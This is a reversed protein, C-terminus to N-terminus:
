QYGSTIRLSMSDHAIFKEVWDCGRSLKEIGTIFCLELLSILPQSSIQDFYRYQTFKQRLMSQAQCGETGPSGSSGSHQIVLCFRQSGEPERQM